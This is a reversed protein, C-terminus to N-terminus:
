KIEFKIDKLKRSNKEGACLCKIQEFVYIDGKKASKVLKLTSQEYRGGKNLKSKLNKTDPNKTLIFSQIRCKGQKVSKTPTPVLALLGAEAKFVSQRITGPNQRGLMAVPLPIGKVKFVYNITKNGVRIYAPFDDIKKLPKIIYSGNEQKRFEVDKANVILNIKSPEVGEYKITVVNQIGAMLAKNKIENVYVTFPKKKKAPKEAELKKKEKEKQKEEDLLDDFIAKRSKKKSSKKNPAPKELVPRSPAEAYNGDEGEDKESESEDDDDKNEIEVFPCDEAEPYHISYVVDTILWDGKIKILNWKKSGWQKMKRGEYFAYDFSIGGVIGDSISEINFTKELQKKEADIVDSIFQKHNSVAKGGFDKYQGNLVADTIKSVVGVFPVSKSYFLANFQVDDSTSIAQRYDKVVRKLAADDKSSKSQGFLFISSVSFAFLLFGKM